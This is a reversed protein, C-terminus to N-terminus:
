VRKILLKKVKVFEQIMAILMVYEDAAPNQDDYLRTLKKLIVSYLDNYYEKIIRINEKDERDIKKSGSPMDFIRNLIVPRKIGAYGVDEHSLIGDLSPSVLAYERFM